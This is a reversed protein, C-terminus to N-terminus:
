WLPVAGAVRFRPVGQFRAANRTDHARVGRSRPRAVPALGGDWLVRSLISISLVVAAPNSPRARAAPAAGSLGPARTMKSPELPWPHCVLVPLGTGLALM